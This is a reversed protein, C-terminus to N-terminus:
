INCFGALFFQTHANPSLVIKSYDLIIGIQTQVGSDKNLWGNDLVYEIQEIVGKKFLNKRNDSLNDFDLLDVPLYRKLLYDYCWDTVEKIFRTVKASKNDNDQLEISLNIGKSQLYEESTLYEM